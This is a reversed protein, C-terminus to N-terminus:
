FVGCVLNAPVSEHIKKPPPLNLGAMVAEFDALQRTLRPNLRKEEGISSCSLGKYDHAPYVICSDPLIFLKDHVSQYLTAASGGQERGM